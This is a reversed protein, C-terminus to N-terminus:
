RGPPAPKPTPAPLPLLSGPISFPTKEDYYTSHLIAPTRMMRARELRLQNQIRMARYEHDMNGTATTDAPHTVNLFPNQTNFLIEGLHQFEHGLTEPDMKGRKIHMGDANTFSNKSWTPQAKIKHAVTALKEIMLKGTPVNHLGKLSEVVDPFAAFRETLKKLAESEHGADSSAPGQLM